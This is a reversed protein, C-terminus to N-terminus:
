SKWIFSVGSGVTFTATSVIGYGGGNTYWNMTSTTVTNGNIGTVIAVHGYYGAGQVYAQLVIISYVHPSSSVTWGALGAGYAWQYANGTWTVWNGTLNHYDYNAWYTCVGYPWYHPSGTVVVGNSTPDYGDTQQHTVATATAQQSVVNMTNNHPSNFLGSSILTNLHMGGENGLPTSLLLAGVTVVILLGLAALSIVHRRGQPPRISTVRKGKGSIVLPPRASGIGSLSTLGALSHNRVQSPSQVVSPGLMLAHLSNDPAPTEPNVSSGNAPRLAFLQHNASSQPGGTQPGESLPATPSSTFALQEVTEENQILGPINLGGQAKHQEYNEATKM